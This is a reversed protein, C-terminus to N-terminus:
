RVARCDCSVTEREGKEAAAEAMAGLQPRSPRACTVQAAEEGRKAGGRPKAVGRRPGPVAQCRAGGVTTELQRLRAGERGGARGGGRISVASRGQGLKGQANETVTNDQWASSCRKRSLSAPSSGQQKMRTPHSM